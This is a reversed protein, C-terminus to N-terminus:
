AHARAKRQKLLRMNMVLFGVGVGIFAVGKLADNIDLDFFRLVVTLAIIALGLNLTGLAAKDLGQRATRVGLLILWINVLLAALVPSFINLVYALLIIGLTEPFMNGSFAKRGSLSLIYAVMGAAVMLLLPLANAGIRDFQSSGLEWIDTFSLVFLVALLSMTGLVKFAGTRKPIGEHQTPVLLYATALGAIGIAIELVVDDWFLNSALGVSLAVFFCLWAFSTSSGQTKWYNIFLPVVAALLPWYLWPATGGSWYEAGALAAYWTIMSIYLLAAMISGPVYLLLVVLLSWTFLFGELEGPLHYIQSVLALCAGVALFLFVASGERWTRETPKKLLTFVVLAQGIALPLFALVTRLTRGLEDWNHAIVLIIGLAILLSGLIGFLLLMRNGGDAAPTAYHERIRAAQEDSLLGTRQLEPLAESLRPDRM